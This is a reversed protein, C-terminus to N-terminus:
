AGKETHDIEIVFEDGMVRITHGAEGAECSFIGLPFPDGGDVLFGKILEEGSESFVYEQGPKIRVEGDGQFRVGRVCCVGSDNGLGVLMSFELWYDEEVVFKLVSLLVPISGVFLEVGDDKGELVVAVEKRCWSMRDLDERVVAVEGFEHEGGIEEFAVVAAEATPPFNERSGVEENFIASPSGVLDSVEERPVSVFVGGVEFVM